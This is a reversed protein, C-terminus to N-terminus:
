TSCVRPWRRIIRENGTKWDSYDAAFSLCPEIEVVLETNDNFRFTMCNLDSEKTLFADALIKGRVEPFPISGSPRYLKPAKRGRTQSENLTSNGSKKKKRIGASM